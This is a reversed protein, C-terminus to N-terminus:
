CVVTDGQSVVAAGDALRAIHGTEFCIPRQDDEGNIRAETQASGSTKAMESRLLLSQYRRLLAVALRAGSPLM